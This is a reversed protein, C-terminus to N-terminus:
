DVEEIVPGDGGANTAKAGQGTNPTGGQHLKTMIPSLQSQAEKMKHDIEDKEALTNNTKQCQEKDEREYQKAEALMREIEAKSLRGKDNTITISRTNGSCKDTAPCMKLENADSLHGELRHYEEQHLHTELPLFTLLLHNDKQSTTEKM